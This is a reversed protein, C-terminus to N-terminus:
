SIRPPGSLAARRVLRLIREFLSYLFPYDTGGVGQGPDLAVRQGRRVGGRFEFHGPDLPRERVLRVEDVDRNHRNRGILPEKRGM